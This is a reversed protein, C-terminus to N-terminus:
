RHRFKVERAPATGRREAIPYLTISIVIVIVVVDAGVRTTHARKATESIAHGAEQLKGKISDAM